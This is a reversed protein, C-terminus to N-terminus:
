GARAVLRYIWVEDYKAPDRRFFSQGTWAKAFAEVEARDSVREARLPYIAGDVRLRVDPNANMNKVWQTETGGANVYVIGDMVTYALNVSYPEGPNTELQATGSDGAFSWDTPVLRTEGTLAGGPLLGTPGSCGLALMLIVAFCCARNKM